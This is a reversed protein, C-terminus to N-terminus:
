LKFRLQSIEYQYLVKISFGCDAVCFRFNEHKLIHFDTCILVYCLFQKSEYLLSINILISSFFIYMHTKVEGM